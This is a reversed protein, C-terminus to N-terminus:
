ALDHHSLTFLLQVLLVLNHRIEIDHQVTFDSQTIDEFIAFDLVEAGSSVKSHGQAFLVQIIPLLGVLLIRDNVGAPSAHYPYALGSQSLEPIFTELVESHSAHRKTFVHVDHKLLHPVHVVELILPSSIYGLQGVGFLGLVSLEDDLFLSDAELWEQLLSSAM